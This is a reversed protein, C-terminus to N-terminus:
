GARHRRPHPLDRDRRGASGRRSALCALLRPDGVVRRRSRSTPARAGCSSRTARRACTSARCASTPTSTTSRPVPPTTPRPRRATSPAGPSCRGRRTSSRHGDVRRRSCACGHVCRTTRGDRHHTPRDPVPARLDRHGLLLTAVARARLRGQRSEPGTPARRRRPSSSCAGARPRSCITADASRCTAASGSRTSGSRASPPVRDRRGRGGRPRPAAAATSWSVRLCAEHRTTARGPPSSRCGAAAQVRVRDPSTDAEAHHSANDENRSRSSTTWQGRRRDDLGAVQRRTPACGDALQEATGSRSRRDERGQALDFAAAKTGIPTGAYVGAGDQRNLLQCSITVLADSNEVVVELRLVALHREEFSVIREDRM